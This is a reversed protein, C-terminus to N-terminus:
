VPRLAAVTRAERPPVTEGAKLTMKVFVKSVLPDTNTPVRSFCPSSQSVLFRVALALYRTVQVLRLRLSIIRAKKSLVLTILRVPVRTVCSPTRNRPLRNLVM